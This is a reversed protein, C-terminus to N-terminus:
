ERRYRLMLAPGPYIVEIGHHETDSLLAITNNGRKLIRPDISVRNFQRTHSAGAAVPFPQGNITFYDKVTGAGGTWCTVYLEAEEIREPEVDIVITCKKQNGARSWFPAPLKVPEYLHVSYSERDPIVLGSVAATVYVLGPADTFRVFARVAVNKQARLLHTDWNLSREGEEAAGLYDVPKRDLTFGHWDRGRLDGNDDYSDYWGQFWVSAVRSRRAPDFELVLNIGESTASAYPQAIVRAEFDALGAEVLHPHGNTLAVRLCAQDVMAHGWFTMGRDLAWQFANDGNVLDTTALKIVPYSFTCNEEETGVRPMQYTSRGNVTVRKNATGPHGGWLEAYFEAASIQLLDEPASIVMLGNEHAEMRDAYEGVSAEPSNIRLRRTHGPRSEREYWHEQWFVGEKQQSPPLDWSYQAAMAGLQTSLCLLFILLRSKMTDPRIRSRCHVCNPEANSQNLKLVPASGCGARIFYSHNDDYDQVLSHYSNFTANKVISGRDVSDQEVGLSAPNWM